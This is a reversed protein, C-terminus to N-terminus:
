ANGDARIRDMIRTMLGTRGFPTMLYYGDVYPAVAAAVAASIDVALEEGRARDAGEYAAIIKEDVTIGSIESNMFLANRQSVVPIIGGLLKGRLTRRALKLNELAQETLVPQTLFGAAGNEEKEQALKLQMDFNRVNVNLAGFIRFPVPLLAANLSDVYKILKRSNFNYVSKVEDRSASPIPDGTIILVNRVGEACLGLLLAQTANLNRDRCTMHPLADIDLERRLKCAMLSSDMRARAIPCDAVTIVSAGADRLERAGSMFKTVDADVPSDLEVAFPKRDPDCLMDWFENPEAPPEQAQVDEAKHSRLPLKPIASTKLASVAAAMHEPTTGCCGGLIRAGRDRLASLQSAFYRPDGDYYTRQGRVTPYGANPMASLLVDEPLSLRGVLEAMHRAGSVCNLGVADINEDEVSARILDGLLRGERTFGDPQAAFSVLIFADPAREKIRKAVAHLGHDSSNTEFLFHRAGCALFSFAAFSYEALLADDDPADIPGIDAFVYANKGAARLALEYGAQIVPVCKEGLNPRNAGFTNTKIAGCGARIYARHIDEVAQPTELNALECPRDPDDNHQAYYTGMAGDFLLIHDELYERIKRM